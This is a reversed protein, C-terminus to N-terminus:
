RSGTKYTLKALNVEARQDDFVNLIVSRGIAFQVGRKGMPRAVGVRHHNMHSLGHGTQREFPFLFVTSVCHILGLPEGFVRAGVYNEAQRWAPGIAEGSRKLEVAVVGLNWRTKMYETPKPILLRDLRYTFKTHEGHSYGLPPIGIEAIVETQVDFHQALSEAVFDFYKCAVSESEFGACAVDRQVKQAHESATESTTIASAQSVVPVPPQAAVAPRLVEFGVLPRLPASAHDGQIDTNM